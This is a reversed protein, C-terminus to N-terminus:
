LHSGGSRTSRRRLARPRFTLLNSTGMSYWSQTRPGSGLTSADNKEEARSFQLTMKPGCRSM